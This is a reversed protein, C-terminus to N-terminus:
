EDEADSEGIGRLVVAGVLLAGTAVLAVLGARLTYEAASMALPPPGFADTCVTWCTSRM